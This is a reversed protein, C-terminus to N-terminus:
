EPSNQFDQCDATVTETIELTKTPEPQMKASLVKLIRELEAQPLKDLKEALEAFSEQEQEQSLDLLTLSLKDGDKNIKFSELGMQKNEIASALKKIDLGRIFLTSQSAVYAEYARKIERNSADPFKKKHELKFEAPRQVRTTLAGTKPHETTVTTLNTDLTILSDIM